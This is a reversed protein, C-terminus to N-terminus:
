AQRISGPTVGKLKKFARIFHSQDSYGLEMSIDYLSMDTFKLMEEAKEVRLMELHEKCSRGFLEKFTRAFHSYSMNCRGALDEVRLNEDLHMDIYELINQMSLEDKTVYDSVNTFDIGEKQWIRILRTMLICLKAHVAIDYGLSKDSLERTCDEFLGEFGHTRCEEETFYVRANQGRAASLLTLIRPTFSTNVTLRAADFKIGSFVAEKVSSASMSHITDSFFLLMEGENLYYEKKDLTAFMSGKVMYVMEMYHHFHPRVPFDNELTNFLFAEFPTNLIDSYEYLYNM